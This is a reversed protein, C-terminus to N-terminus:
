LEEWHEKIEKAITYFDKGDDNMESLSMLGDSGLFDGYENKIEAWMKVQEPLYLTQGLFRYPLNSRIDWIKEWIKEWITENHEKAYLDCLVGLCCFKDDNSRLCHRGQKYQGSELAAIWKEAIDKKM